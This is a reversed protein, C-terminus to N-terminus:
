SEEAILEEWTKDGYLVEDERRSIRILTASNIDSPRQLAKIGAGWARRREMEESDPERMLWAKMEEPSM